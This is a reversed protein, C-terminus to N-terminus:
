NTLLLLVFHKNTKKKHSILFFARLAVQIIGSMGFYAIYNPNRTDMSFLLPFELMKAAAEFKRAVAYELPTSNQYCRITRDAGNDLGLGLWGNYLM